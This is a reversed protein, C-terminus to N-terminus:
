DLRDAACAAEASGQEPRPPQPASSSRDARTLAAIPSITLQARRCLQRDANGGRAATLPWTLAGRCRTCEGGSVLAAWEQFQCM